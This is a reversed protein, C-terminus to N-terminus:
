GGGHTRRGGTATGHRGAAQRVGAVAAHLRRGDAVSGAGARGGVAAVQVSVPRTAAGHRGKVRAQGTRAARVRGGAAPLAAAAAIVRGRRAAIRTQAPHRASGADVAAVAPRGAPRGRHLVTHAGRVLTLRAHDVAVRAAAVAAAAPLMCSGHPRRCRRVTGTQSSVARQPHKHAQADGAAQALHGSPTKEPVRGRPRARSCGVRADRGQHPDRTRVRPM